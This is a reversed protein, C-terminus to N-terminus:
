NRNTLPGRFFCACNFWSFWGFARLVNLGICFPWWIGSSLKLHMKTFSFIHIKILIENFTTGLPCIILTEANTWIIAQRRGPSLGNDSGIITQKSVCIHTVRGWHTIIIEVFGGLCHMTFNRLLSDQATICIADTFKSASEASIFTSFKLINNFNHM